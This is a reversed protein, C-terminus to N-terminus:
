PGESPALDTQTEPKRAGLPSGTTVVKDMVDVEVFLESNSLDYGLSMESRSM